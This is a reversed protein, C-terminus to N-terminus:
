LNFKIHEFVFKMGKTQENYNYSRCVLIGDRFPHLNGFYYKRPPFNFQMLQELSDNVVIISWAADMFLNLTGDNNNHKQPHKFLIYTHSTNENYFIREIEPQEAFYKELFSNSNISDWPFLDPEVWGEIELKASFRNGLSDIKYINSQQFEFIIILQKM